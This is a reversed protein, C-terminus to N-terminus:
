PLLLALAAIVAIIEASGSLLALFLVVIKFM